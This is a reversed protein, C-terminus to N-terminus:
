VPAILASRAAARGYGSAIWPPKGEGGVRERLRSLSHVIRAQPASENV